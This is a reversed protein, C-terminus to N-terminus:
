FPQFHTVQPCGWSKPFRWADLRLALALDWCCEGADGPAHSEHIGRQRGTFVAAPQPQINWPPKWPSKWPTKMPFEHPKWPIKMHFEHPNWPIEYNLQELDFDKARPNAAEIQKPMVSPSVASNKNLRYFTEQCLSSSKGQVTSRFSRFLCSTHFSRPGPWWLAVMYWIWGYGVVVPCLHCLGHFRNFDSLKLELELIDGSGRGASEARGLSQGASGLSCYGAPFDDRQRADPSSQGYRAPFPLFFPPFQQASLERLWCGTSTLPPPFREIQHSGHPFCFFMRAALFSKAIMEWSNHFVGPSVISSVHGLHKKRAIRHKCVPVCACACLKYCTNIFKVHKLDINDVYTCLYLMM